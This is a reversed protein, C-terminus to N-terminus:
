SNVDKTEFKMPEVFDNYLHNPGLDFSDINYQPTTTPLNTPLQISDLVSEKPQDFDYSQTFEPGRSAMTDNKQDRPSNIAGIFRKYEKLRMEHEDNFPNQSMFDNGDIAEDLVRESDPESRGTGPVQEPVSPPYAASHNQIPGSSANFFNELQLNLRSQSTATSSNSALSLVSEPRKPRVPYQQHNSNPMTPHPHHTHPLSLLPRSESDDFSCSGVLPFLPFMIEEGPVRRNEAPNNMTPKITQQLEQPTASSLAGNSSGSHIPSSSASNAVDLFLQPYVQQGPIYQDPQNAFLDFLDANTDLNESMDELVYNSAFSEDQSPLTLPVGDDTVASLRAMESESQNKLTIKKSKDLKKSTVCACTCHSNKNCPCLALHNGPAKGKKGCTCSIHTNKLKRQERCHQCQTAPRGKPKIMTLPQDTHSCTTVRHGRICRECAYKVGNILVM